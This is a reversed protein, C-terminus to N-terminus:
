LSGPTIIVQPNLPPSQLSCVKSTAFHEQFIMITVRREMRAIATTIVHAFRKRQVRGHRLVVDGAIVSM